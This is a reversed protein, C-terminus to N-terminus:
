RVDPCKGRHPCGGYARCAEGPTAAVQLPPIGRAQIIPLSYKNHLDTFKSVISARDELINRQEARLVTETQYYVWRGMVYELTPARTLGYYAYIVWQADHALEEADMAYLDIAKTTKHDLVCVALPTHYLADIRGIYQVGDHAFEMVHEVECTGTMPLLHLGERAIKGERTPPPAAGDRLWCELIKHVREGLAASPHQKKPEVRSFAWKRPCERWTSIQSASVRSVVVCQAADTADSVM